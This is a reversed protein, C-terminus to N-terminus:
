GFLSISQQLMDKIKNCFESKKETQWNTVDQSSSIKEKKLDGWVDTLNQRLQELINWIKQHLWEM